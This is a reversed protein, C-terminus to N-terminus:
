KCTLRTQVVEGVHLGEALQQELTAGIGSDTAIRSERGRAPAATEEGEPRETAAPIMVMNGEEDFGFGPDEILGTDEFISPHDVRSGAKVASSTDGAFGGPVSRSSTGASPLVPGPEEAAEEVHSSRSSLLSPPSLLSSRRSTDTSIDFPSLDFNMDLDPLFAPDDPLNLQDPRSSTHPLSSSHTDSGEGRRELM